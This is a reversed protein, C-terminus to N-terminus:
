LKWEPFNEVQENTHLLFQKPTTGAFEKFERIYHSQDAYLHQYAVETLSKFNQQRIYSLSTQFRNIRFFLKPSIGIDTKFIRELSRESLNLESQIKHLSNETSRQMKEILFTTRPSEGYKNNKIQKTIFNSLIGIRKDNQNEQLLKATLDNRIVTNLDAYQDTFDNADIGFITKLANPQFYVAINFYNGQTTKESHKTTLGHLFLQPLKNRDKDLFCNPNEQFILGPCGDAIIKFTTPQRCANDNELLGFYRIYPKLNEIPLVQRYKM